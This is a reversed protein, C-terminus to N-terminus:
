RLGVKWQKWSALGFAAAYVCKWSLLSQKAGKPIQASDVVLVAATRM